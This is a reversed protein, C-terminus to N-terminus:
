SIALTKSQGTPVTMDRKPLARAFSRTTSESDNSLDSERDTLPVFHVPAAVVARGDLEIEVPLQATAVKFFKPSMQFLALDALRLKRRSL